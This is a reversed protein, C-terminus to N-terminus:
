PQGKVSAVLDDFREEKALDSTRLAIKNRDLYGIGIEAARKLQEHNKMDSSALGESNYFKLVAVGVANIAVRNSGALIVGVKM